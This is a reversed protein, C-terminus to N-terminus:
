WQLNVAVNNQHTPCQTIMVYRVHAYSGFNYPLHDEKALQCVFRMRQGCERCNPYESSHIRSPWGWLKDKHITDGIREMLNQDPDAVWELVIGFEKAEIRMTARQNWIDEYFLGLEEHEAWDPYDDHLAWNKISLAPFCAADAVTTTRTPQNTVKIVRVFHNPADASLDAVIDSRSQWRCDDFTCRFYQLLGPEFQSVLERPVEEFNLQFFFSFPRWCRGCAPWPDDKAIWPLGSFKSATLGKDGSVVEPLWCHRMHADRWPKLLKIAEDPTM